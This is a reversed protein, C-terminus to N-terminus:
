GEESLKSSGKLLAVDLYFEISNINFHFLFSGRASLGKSRGGKVVVKNGMFLLNEQKEVFCSFLDAFYIISAHISIKCLNLSFFYSSLQDFTVFQEKYAYFFKLTKISTNNSKEEKRQCMM